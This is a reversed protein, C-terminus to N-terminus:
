SRGQVTAATARLASTADSDVHGLADFAVGFVNRARAPTIYGEEVDKRVLEPDRTHPEGYGGGGCSYSVITEGDRVNILGGGPLEVIEGTTLRKYQKSPAGSHGGRVGKPANISGDSVYGVDIDCGRPGFEVAISRAGNFRGSGESDSVFQRSHVLLPQRLEDLEVSDQFCLGANGVHGITQWADAHPAGAGGTFGLFLQNVFPRGSEPHIGSVVGVSPPIVAGCEALGVGDDLEAMATQVANAVRDAMNTTAVSCSTPHLPIGVICRERLLIDFRRFSGSNKPVTHDLSNFIGVMAATRACAESLNLGCPLCDVNDRLDIKIRASETDVTVAAQITVGTEPMSPFLPDHTSSGTVHGSTLKKIAGIMRQESYDLYDRAYADLTAWGIEEALDLLEREGIRAAGVMALYDGWWQEPVRIRMKCMRVIDDINKYDQQVKVAPFILAGEHYVDRAAGMYTTPESNGCDAQHAKAVVTFRHVGDNDIVPVLITHDAPHSCGHYPSNHLFADGRKLEPHFSKMAASMLDPGSLVHIPLSEAAALLQCDATVICCSFDRAINLVGSRGSRLLTNAMKRAIGELRNTLLALQVGDTTPAMKNDRHM